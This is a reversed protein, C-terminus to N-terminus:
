ADPSTLSPRGRHRISTVLQHRAGYQMAALQDFRQLTQYTTEAISAPTLPQSRTILLISEITEALAMSDYKASHPKHPFAVAISQILRGLNFTDKKGDSRIVLQTDALSPREYTTFTEHCKTCRRRRWVLATKKHPRSNIVTTDPHSCNICFM